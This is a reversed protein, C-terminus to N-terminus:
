EVHSEMARRKELEFEVKINIADIERKDEKFYFFTIAFCMGACIGYWIDWGSRIGTYTLGAILFIFAKDMNNM